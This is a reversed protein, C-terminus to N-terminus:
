LHIEVLGSTAAAANSKARVGLAYEEKAFDVVLIAEIAVLAVLRDIHTEV